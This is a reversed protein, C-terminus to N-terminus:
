SVILTPRCSSLCGRISQSQPAPSVLKPKAVHRLEEELTTELDAVLSDSGPLKAKGRYDALTKAGPAPALSTTGPLQVLGVDFEAGEPAVQVASDVSVAVEQVGHQTLM